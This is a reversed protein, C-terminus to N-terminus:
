FYKTLSSKRREWIKAVHQAVVSVLQAKFLPNQILTVVYVHVHRDVKLLATTSVNNQTYNNKM